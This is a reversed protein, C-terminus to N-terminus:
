WRGHTLISSFTVSASDLITPLNGSDLLSACSSISGGQWASVAGLDGAHAGKCGIKVSQEGGKVLGCGLTVLDHELALRERRILHSGERPKGSACVSKAAVTRRRRALREEHSGRM